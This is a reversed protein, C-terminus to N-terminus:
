RTAGAAPVRLRTGPLVLDPDDGIVDRNAAYWRPWERAVEVDSAGAGLRERAIAWLTDGRRVVVEAGAEAGEGVGNTSGAPRRGPTLVGDPAPTPRTPTWGPGPPLAPDCAAVAAVPNAVAPGAVAAGGAVAPGAVAPGAVAPGAVAPATSSAPAPPAAHAAGGGLTVGLAAAACWRALGPTWRDGATRAARGAAGPLHAVLGVLVGLGLWGTLLLAVLVAVLTLAEAGSAPGPAVLSRALGAAYALLVRAVAGTAGLVLLVSTAVRVASPSEPARM